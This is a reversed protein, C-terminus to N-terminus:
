HFILQTSCKLDQHEDQRQTTAGRPRPSIESTESTCATEMDSVDGTVMRNLFGFGASAGLLGRYWRCHGLQRVCSIGEGALIGPDHTRTGSSAPIYTLTKGANTNDNTRLARADPQDGTWPTRGFIELM